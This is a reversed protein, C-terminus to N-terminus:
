LDSASSFCRLWAELNLTPSRTSCAEARVVKDRFSCSGRMVIAIKGRVIQDNTIDACADEPEVVAVAAENVAADTKGVKDDGNLARFIMHSLHPAIGGHIHVNWSKIESTPSHHTPSYFTNPGM